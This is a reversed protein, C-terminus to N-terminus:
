VKVIECTNMAALLDEEIMPFTDIACEKNLVIAGNGYLVVHTNNGLDFIAFYGHLELAEYRDATSEPVLMKGKIHLSRNSLNLLAARVFQAFYIYISTTTPYLGVDSHTVCGGEYLMGSYEGNRIAGRQSWEFGDFSTKPDPDGYNKLWSNQDAVALNIHDEPTWYTEPLLKVIYGGLWAQYEPSRRDYRTSIGNVIRGITWYNSGAEVKLGFRQWLSTMDWPVVGNIFRPPIDHFVLKYGLKRDNKKIHPLFILKCIWMAAEELM